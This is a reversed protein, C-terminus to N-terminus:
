EEEPNVIEVSINNIIPNDPDNGHQIKQASNFGLMKNIMDIAKIKDHMKFKVINETGDEGYKRTTYQIESLAAKKEDSLENFDKQTMWGDKFDSLNTYALKSLEQINKLASVGALKALDKQIYEIYSKLEPKKLNEGGISYATKKSYGAAIAARSANWDVVYEHCFIRQKETLKSFDQNELSDSM